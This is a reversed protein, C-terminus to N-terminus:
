SAALLSLVVSTADAQNGNVADVVQQAIPGLVGDHTTLFNVAQAAGLDQSIGKVILLKVGLVEAAQQTNTANVRGTAAYTAELIGGLITTLLSM